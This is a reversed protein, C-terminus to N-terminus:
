CFSVRVLSGRRGENAMVCFMPAKLLVDVDDLAVDIADTGEVDKVVGEGRVVVIGNGERRFTVCGNPACIGPVLM